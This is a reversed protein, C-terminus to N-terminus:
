IGLTERLELERANMEGKDTEHDYGCLHLLGHLMLQKIEGELTLGNEAAQKQAQEASIVINGLNTKDPDFEDPEHPFSLVDTTLNKGRFLHNLQKMRNDSVFAISFRRDAAEPVNAAILQSFKRFVGTEFRVKRQLNIIDIM